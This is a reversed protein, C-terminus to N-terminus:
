DLAALASLAPLLVTPVRNQSLDDPPVAGMLGGQTRPDDLLKGAEAAVYRRLDADAVSIEDILEARRDLLLAIDEFDRSGLFDGRGRGSWAELKMALLYPPPAARINRGSPLERDVAHPLTAAQWRNEFGLIDARAPMADLVLQSDTHRWRCIVRSDQAEAFGHARLRAEFDHFATRTTVEVVVDVDETPRVEVAGQRTIWLELTAGGVFVVEDLLDDLAEAAVELLEINM